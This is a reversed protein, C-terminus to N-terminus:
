PIENFTPAKQKGNQHERWARFIIDYVKKVDPIVRFEGYDPSENRNTAFWSEKAPKSGFMITGCGDSREEISFDVLNGLDISRTRREFLGSIVIARRDTVGYFCKSRFWRDVFLRGILLYFVQLGWVLFFAYRIWADFEDLSRIFFWGLVLVAAAIPMTIFDSGAIVFGQRPRGAWLLTEGPALQSNIPQEPNEWM